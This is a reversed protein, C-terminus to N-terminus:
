KQTSKRQAKLKETYSKPEVTSKDEQEKLFNQVKTQISKLEDLQAKLATAEAVEVKLREIEAKLATVEESDQKNVVEELATVTNDAITVKWIKEAYKITYTGDPTNITKAGVEVTEGVFEIDTGEDSSIKINVPTKVKIFDLIRNLLSKHENMQEQLNEMNNKNNIPKPLYAAIKNAIENIEPMIFKDVSQEKVVESIFKFGKAATTNFYSEPTMLQNLEDESINLEKKYIDSIIKNWKELEEADEVLEKASKDDFMYFFRGWHIFFETNDYAKRKEVPLSLFAFTAASACVGRFTVSINTKDQLYEYIKLGETIQGGYSTVIFNIEEGDYLKVAGMINALTIEFGIDGNLIVQQM